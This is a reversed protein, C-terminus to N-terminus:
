GRPKKAAPAIRAAEAHVSPTGVVTTPRAAHPAHLEVLMRGRATGPIREECAPIHLIDQKGEQWSPRPNTHREVGARM